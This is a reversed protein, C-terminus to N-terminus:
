VAPTSAREVLASDVAAPFPHDLPPSAMQLAGKRLFATKSQLAGCPQEDSAARGPPSHLFALMKEFKEPTLLERVRMLEPIQQFAATRLLGSRRCGAQQRTQDASFMADVRDMFDRLVALRPDYQLMTALRGRDM